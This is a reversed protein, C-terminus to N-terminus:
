LVQITKRFAAIVQRIASETPWIGNSFRKRDIPIDEWTTQCYGKEWDPRLYYYPIKGMPEKTLPAPVEIGNILFKNPKIRFFLKQGESDLNTWFAKTSVEDVEPNFSQWSSEWPQFTMQIEEGNLAAALATKGDILGELGEVKFTKFEFSSESTQDKKLKRVGTTKDNITKSEVWKQPNEAFSYFVGESSIYLPYDPRDSAVLISYNADEISNRHLVILDNLKDESLDKIGEVAWHARDIVYQNDVFNIGGDEYTFISFEDSEIRPFDTLYGLSSLKKLVELCNKKNVRLHYKDM